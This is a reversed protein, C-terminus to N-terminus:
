FNFNSSKRYLSKFLWIKKFDRWVNKAGIEDHGYFHGQGNEDVSFTKPKAIDHLLGSVRQKLNKETSDVVCKIHDFVTKDHYKTRQEFGICDHLEPIIYKLANTKALLELGISPRESLLIKDIEIKLRENAVSRM